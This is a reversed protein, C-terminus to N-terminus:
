FPEDDNLIIFPICENIKIKCKYFDLTVRIGDNPILGKVIQEIFYSPM